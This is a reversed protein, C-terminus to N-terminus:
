TKRKINSPCHLSRQQQTLHSHQHFQHQPHVTKTSQTKYFYIELPQQHIPKSNSLIYDSCTYNLKKFWSKRKKLFLHLVFFISPSSTTDYVQIINYLYTYRISTILGANAPINITYKLDTTNIQIAIQIFLDRENKKKRPTTTRLQKFQVM